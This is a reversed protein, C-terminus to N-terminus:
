LYFRPVILDVDMVPEIIKPEALEILRKLGKAACMEIAVSTTRFSSYNGDIVSVRANV